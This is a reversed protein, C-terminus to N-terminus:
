AGNGTRVESDSGMLGPAYQRDVRPVGTVDETGHSVTGHDYTGDTNSGSGADRSSGYGGPYGGQSSGGPSSRKLFRAAFLGLAFAGGLFVAPSRRAFMEAEGVLDEISKSELYGSVRDIQDAATNAYQGIPAQNQQELSQATQRLAQSVAGLTETANSKQTQLMSSTQQQAQVALGGATEQAQHAASPAGQRVQETVIAGTDGSNM